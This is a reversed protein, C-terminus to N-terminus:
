QLFLPLGTAVRRLSGNDHRCPLTKSIFFLPVATLPLSDREDSDEENQFNNCNDKDDKNNKTPARTRTITTPAVAVVVM